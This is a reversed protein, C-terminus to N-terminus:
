TSAILRVADARKKASAGEAKCYELEAALGRVAAILDRIDDPAHTVLPANIAHMIVGKGGEAFGMLPSMYVVKLETDSSFDEMKWPGKNAMDLRKEIEAIRKDNM